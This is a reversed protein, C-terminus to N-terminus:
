PELIVKCQTTPRKLAEFAESFEDFGVVDTIMEHSAVRGQDIMAIALEFDRKEYAIVFQVTIEKAMAVFPFITDPEMCVGVVVVRTRRPAMGLCEQLLGPVGVCEYILDPPGGTKAEFAPLVEEATPDIVDTAGFRGALDRRGSSRESVVVASAGFFRSWLSVALGIPGAGILLVRAGPDPRAQGVAHLGVALPEVLAGQRHNVAEPLHLAEAAGVKVFEAYAGPAQLGTALATDCTTVDGALCARCHGCGIFPISCVRDGVRFRDGVDRGVEVVDGSFEHGLIQGPKVAMGLQAWHLDSGCIGSGRVRVIMEGPGPKPDDVTEIELPKGIERLVAARM